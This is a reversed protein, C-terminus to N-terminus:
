KKSEAEKKNIILKKISQRMFRNKIYFADKNHQGIQQHKDNNHHM